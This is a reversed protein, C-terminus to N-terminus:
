MMSLPDVDIEAHVGGPPKFEAHAAQVWRHLPRVHMRPLACNAILAAHKHWGVDFGGLHAMVIYASM